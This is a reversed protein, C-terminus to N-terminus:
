PTFRCKIKGYHFFVEVQDGVRAEDGFFEAMMGDDLMVHTITYPKGAKSVKKEKYEVSIVLRV